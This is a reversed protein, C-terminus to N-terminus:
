RIAEPLDRFMEEMQQPPRVHREANRSLRRGAEDLTTKLRICTLADFLPKMRATAHSVGSGAVIRLGRAHAADIRRRNDREEQPDLHRQVEAFLNDNGLTSALACLEKVSGREPRRARPPSRCAARADRSM